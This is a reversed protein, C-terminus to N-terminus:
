FIFEKTKLTFPAGVIQFFDIKAPVPMNNTGVTYFKTGTTSLRNTLITEHLPAPNAVPIDTRGTVFLTLCTTHRHTEFM